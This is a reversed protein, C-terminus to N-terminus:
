LDDAKKMYRDTLPPYHADQGHETQTLEHLRQNRFIHDQIINVFYEVEREQEEHLPNVLSGNGRFLSLRLLVDRLESETVYDAPDVHDFLIHGIEHLTYHLQAVPHASGNVVINDEDELGLVLGTVPLGRIELIIIRRKRRREIHGIFDAISFQQWNYNLGAVMGKVKAEDM